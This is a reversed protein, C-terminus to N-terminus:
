CGDEDLPKDFHDDSLREFFEEPLEQWDQLVDFACRYVIQWQHVVGRWHERL